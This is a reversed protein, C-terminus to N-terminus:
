FWQALAESLTPHHFQYDLAMLKGPMVRTSSLLLEDAMEGFMLRALWAPMPLLTPRGLAQGLTRTFEANTVPNPAVLNVAGSLTQDLLLFALMEVMDELSVWSFYQEGSGLIGGLGLRFPPLMKKLAGGEPSLVVGTRVHVVRVGVRHLPQTATEWQVCVDSVFDTGCDNTEDLVTAGRNGYFGIASGSIFLKPPKSLTSFYEALLQTGQVRSNVILHKKEPNWRGEAINEGALHVVADPVGFGNLDVIGRQIDWYPKGEGPGTRMLGAVTFGKMALHRMLASGVLGTSGTILVKM